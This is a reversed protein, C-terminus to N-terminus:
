RLTLVGHVAEPVNAARKTSVIRTRDDGKSTHGRLGEASIALGGIKEVKGLSGMEEVRSRLFLPRDHFLKRVEWVAVAVGSADNSSLTPGTIRDPRHQAPPVTSPISRSVDFMHRPFESPQEPRVPLAKSPKLAAPMTLVIQVDEAPASGTNVLVFDILLLDKLEAAWDELARVYGEYDETTPARGYRSAWPRPESADVVLRWASDIEEQIQDEAILNGIVPYPQIEQSPQMSGPVRFGFGLSPIASPRERLDRELQDIRERLPRVQEEVMRRLKGEYMSDVDDATALVRGGTKRVWIEGERLWFKDRNNLREKIERSVVHPRRTSDPIVLAAVRKTSGTKDDVECTLYEFNVSRGLYGNITQRTMSSQDGVGATIGVVRGDNSVGYVIYGYGGLVELDANAFSSVDKVLEGKEKPTAYSLTEKFECYTPEDPAGAVLRRIESRHREVELRAGGGVANSCPQQVLGV